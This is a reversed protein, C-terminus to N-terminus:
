NKYGGYINTQQIKVWKKSSGTWVSLTYLIEHEGSLYPISPINIEKLTVNELGYTGPQIPSTKPMNGFRFWIDLILATFLDFIDRNKIGTCFNVTRDFFKLRQDNDINFFQSRFRFTKLEKLYTTIFSLM